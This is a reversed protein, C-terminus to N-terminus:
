TNATTSPLRLLLSSSFSLYLDEGKSTKQRLRLYVQRYTSLVKRELKKKYETQCYQRIPDHANSIFMYNSGVKIITSLLLEISKFM